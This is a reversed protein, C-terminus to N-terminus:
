YETQMQTSDSSKDDRLSPEMVLADVVVAVEAPLFRATLSSPGPLLKSAAAGCDGTPVAEVAAASLFAPVIM